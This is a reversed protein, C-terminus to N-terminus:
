RALRQKVTDVANSLATYATQVTMARLYRFLIERLTDSEEVAARLAGSRIRWAEGPAEIRLRHPTQDAGFAVEWPAFGERGFMGIEVHGDATNGAVVSGIGNELFYVHEIPQDPSALVIGRELSTLQLHASLLAFDSDSAQTLLRNRVQARNPRIDKSRSNLVNM